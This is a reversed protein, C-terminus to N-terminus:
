GDSPLRKGHPSVHVDDKSNRLEECEKSGFVDATYVEDIARLAFEVDMTAANLPSCRNPRRPAPASEIMDRVSEFPIIRTVYKVAAIEGDIRQVQAATNQAIAVTM